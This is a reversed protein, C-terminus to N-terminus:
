DKWRWMGKDQFRKLALRCYNESLEIVSAFRGTNIAAELTVGSGGFPDIIRGEPRCTDGIIRELLAVPMQCPHDTREKFTGCVRPFEDWVDPPVKGGANARKDNYKTQRLSPILTPKYYLPKQKEGGKVFYLLHTKCRSYKTKLNEGFRYHWVIWNRLTLGHGQILIKLEAAYEDGIALWFAGGPRLAAVAPAIWANSWGLYEEKKRRDNYRDYKYGINFPPDAFIADAFEGRGAAVNTLWPVCDGCILFSGFRIPFTEGKKVRKM